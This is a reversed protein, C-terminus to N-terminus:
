QATKLEAECGQLQRRYSVAVEGVGEAFKKTDDGFRGAKYATGGVHYALHLNVDQKPYIKLVNRNEKNQWAIFEASDRFKHRARDGVVKEFGLWTGILAQSFGFSSSKSNSANAVFDSEKRMFAMITAIDGDYEKSWHAAYDYWHPKEKFIECLDDRDINSSLKEYQVPEHGATDPFLSAYARQQLEGAQPFLVVLGALPFLFVFWHSLVRKPHILVYLFFMASSFLFIHYSWQVLAVKSLQFFAIKITSLSLQPVLLILMQSIIMIIGCISLVILRRLLDFYTMKEEQNKEPPLFLSPIKVILEASKVVVRIIFKIVRWILAFKGIQYEDDKDFYRKTFQFTIVLLIPVVVLVQMIAIILIGIESGGDSIGMDTYALEKVNQMYEETPQKGVWSVISWGNTTWSDKWEPLWAWKPYIKYPAVKFDKRLREPIATIIITQAREQQRPDKLRVVLVQKEKDFPQPNIGANELITLIDYKISEDFAESKEKHSVMVAADPPSYRELILVGIHLLVVTIVWVMIMSLVGLIARAGWLCYFRFKEWIQRLTGGGPSPSPPPPPPPSPPPFTKHPLVSSDSNLLEGCFRLPVTLMSEWLLARKLFGLM